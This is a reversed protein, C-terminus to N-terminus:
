GGRSGRCLVDNSKSRTAALNQDPAVDFGGYFDPDPVTYDRINMGINQWTKLWTSGQEDKTRRGRIRGKAL